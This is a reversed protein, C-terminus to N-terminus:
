CCVMILWFASLFLHAGILAADKLSDRFQSPGGAQIRGKPEVVEESEGIGCGIEGHM